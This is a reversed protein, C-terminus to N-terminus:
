TRNRRRGHLYERPARDAQHAQAAIPRVDYDIWSIYADGTVVNKVVFEHAEQDLTDFVPVWDRPRGLLQAFRDADAADAPPFVFKWTTESHQHRTMGVPRQDMSVDTVGHSRGERLIQRLMKNLRKSLDQLYQKEDFALVVNADPRYLTVLLEYIKREHYAEREEGVLHPAAPWFIAQQYKGLDRVDEIVPWGLRAFTADAKKTAVFIEASGRLAARQQLIDIVLYTKGSGSKGTIEVHEPEFRGGPRGWVAIFEPGLESWPVRPPPEFALSRRYGDPPPTPM